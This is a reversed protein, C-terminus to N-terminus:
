CWPMSIILTTDEKVDKLKEYRVEGGALEEVPVGLTCSSITSDKTPDNGFEVYDRYYDPDTGAFFLIAFVEAANKMDVFLVNGSENQGVGPGTLLYDLRKVLSEDKAIRELWNSM